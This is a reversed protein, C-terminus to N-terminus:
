ENMSYIAALFFPITILLSILLPKWIKKTQFQQPMYKKFFFETLFGGGAFNLGYTLARSPHNLANLTLVALLTYSGSFILVQWAERWRGVDRMNHFLLVGGFVVTFFM